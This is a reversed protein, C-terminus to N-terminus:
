GNMKHRYKGPTMGHHEKFMKGFYSFSNFGTKFAIQSVSLETTSLYVKAKELRYATLYKAFCCGFTKKFLRCFYSTNMYLADSATRSTIPECYNESIYDLVSKAFCSRKETSTNKQFYGLRKLAGFFISINGVSDLEWGIPGDYCALYANKINKFFDKSYPLEKSVLCKASLTGDTLEDTLATDCLLSPDFCICYYIGTGNSLANARHLAYPSIILIDGRTIEYPRTDVYFIASGEEMAILEIEKHRHSLVEKIGNEFHAKYIALPITTYREKFEDRFM